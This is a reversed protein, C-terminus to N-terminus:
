RITMNQVDLSRYIGHAKVLQRRSKKKGELVVSYKKVPAFRHGLSADPVDPGRILIVQPSQGEGM